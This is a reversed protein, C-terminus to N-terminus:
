HYNKVVNIKELKTRLKRVGSVSRYVQQPRIKGDNLMGNVKTKLKNLEIQLSRFENVTQRISNLESVGFPGDSGSKISSITKVASVLQSLDVGNM